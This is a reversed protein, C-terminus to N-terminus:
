TVSSSSPLMGSSVVFVKSMKGDTSDVLFQALEETVETGFFATHCYAVKNVQDAVAKCVEEHGHGLCSM